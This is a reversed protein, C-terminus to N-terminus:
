SWKLVVFTVNGFSTKYSGKIKKSLKIVCHELYIQLKLLFVLRTLSEYIMLFKYFAPLSKIVRLLFSRYVLQRLNSEVLLLFHQSRWVLLEIEEGLSVFSSLTM